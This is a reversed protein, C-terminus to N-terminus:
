PSNKMYKIVEEDIFPPEEETPVEDVTGDKFSKPSVHKILDKESTATNKCTLCQVCVTSDNTIWLMGSMGDTEGALIIKSEYDPAVVNLEVHYKLLRSEVINKSGCIKCIKM